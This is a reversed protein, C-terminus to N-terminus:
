RTECNNTHNDGESSYQSIELFLSEMTNTEPHGTTVCISYINSNLQFM